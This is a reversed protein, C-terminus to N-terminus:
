SSSARAIPRPTFCYTIRPAPNSVKPYRFGYGSDTKRTTSTSWGAVCSQFRLRSDAAPIEIGLDRVNAGTSKSFPSCSQFLKLPVAKSKEATLKKEHSPTVIYRVSDAAFNVSPQMADMGGPLPM